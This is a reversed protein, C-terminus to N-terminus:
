PRYIKHLTPRQLTPIKGLQGILTEKETHRNGARSRQTGWGRGGERKKRSSM